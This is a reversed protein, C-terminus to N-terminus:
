KMQSKTTKNSTCIVTLPLKLLITVLIKMSNLSHARVETEAIASLFIQIEQRNGYDM